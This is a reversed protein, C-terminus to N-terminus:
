IEVMNFSFKSLLQPIGAIITGYTKHNDHIQSLPVALLKVNKPVTFRQHAAVEGYFAKGVRDEDASLKSCLKRRLGEIDSLELTPYLVFKESAVVISTSAQVGGLSLYSFGYGCYYFQYWVCILQLWDDCVWLEYFSLSTLKKELLLFCTCTYAVGLIVAEVCARLGRAEYNSKLRSLRETVTEDRSPRRADKSGFYFCSLRYLNVVATADGALNNTTASPPSDDVTTIVRM